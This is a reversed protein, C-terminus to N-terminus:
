LQEIELMYLVKITCLFGVQLLHPCKRLASVLIDVVETIAALTSRLVLLSNLNKLKKHAEM